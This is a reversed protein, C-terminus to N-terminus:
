TVWVKNAGGKITVSGTAELNATAPAGCGATHSIGTLTWTLLLHSESERNEFDVSGSPTQSGIEISCISAGFVTPTIQIKAGKACEIHPTAQNSKPTTLLIQCDNTIILAPPPYWFVVCGSYQPALSLQNVKTGITTGSFLANSCQVSGVSSFHFVNTAAQTGSLTTPSASSHYSQEAQAGSATLASVTLLVVAALGSARLKSIM